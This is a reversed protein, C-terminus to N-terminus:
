RPPVITADPPDALVVAAPDVAPAPHATDLPRALVHLTWEPFVYGADRYRDEVAAMLPAGDAYRFRIPEGALARLREVLEFAGTPQGALVALRLASDEAPAVDAVLIAIARGDAGEHMLVEGAALHASFKTETLEELAWPRPEYLFRGAAFSPDRTLARWLEDAASEGVVVFGGDGAAQLLAKRRRRAERQVEPQFGSEEDHTDGDGDPSWWTGRLTALHDFGGRAGLRHSGENRASTAYRVIRAGNVAAWHLEAAQLDTAVDMGRVRPDVRIGELWAEGRAPMAVRVVAVPQGPQLRNGESDTADFAPDTPTTAVLM